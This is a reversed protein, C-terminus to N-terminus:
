FMEQMCARSLLHHLNCQMGTSHLYCVVFSSTCAHHCLLPSLRAQEVVVDGQQYECRHVCNQLERKVDSDLQWLDVLEDFAGRLVPSSRAAAAFLGAACTSSRASRSGMRSSRVGVGSTFSRLMLSPQSTPTADIETSEIFRAADAGSRQPNLLALDAPAV